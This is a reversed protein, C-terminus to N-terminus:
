AILTMFHCNFPFPKLAKLKEKQEPTLMKRSELMSHIDNMDNEIKIEGIEKVKADIKQLDSEPQNLLEQLDLEAVKLRAMIMIRNKECKTKISHLKKMQDETLSIEGALMLYFDFDHMAHEKPHFHKKMEWHKLMEKEPPPFPHRFHPHECCGEEPKPPKRHFDHQEREPKEHENM